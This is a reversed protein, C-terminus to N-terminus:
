FKHYYSVSPMLVLFFSMPRYAYTEEDVVLRWMVENHRALVNYVSLNIGNEMRENKIFTRNISVDLRIYPRLRCANHEGYKTIISGSTIYFSEPATFPRGSSFVFNGSFNWKKWDYSAVASLDHIREHNAPYLGSYDPHDFSRLARGISYSVWGTFKGSKKHLMVNLGFNHGCGKLLYKDLDYKATVLDFVDGKYEVQNLLYKYYACSSISLQGGLLDVDYNLSVSQAAQPASHKGSLFWFDMPLGINSIGSQFLYQKQMGYALSVRGNRYGNWVISASPTLGWFMEQEPSLFSSAKLGTTFSIDCPFRYTYEGWLDCELGRQLEPEQMGVYYDVQQLSQPMVQYGTVDAGFNYNGFSVEAKYGLAMIDSMVYMSSPQQDFLVDSSYGSMFLSNNFQVHDGAHNWHLAAALNGWSAGLSINYNSASMYAKDHGAYVDIWLKDNSTPAIYWTLNYDGFNYRIPDDDILLWPKYLLNLYSSRASLHLCSKNGVNFAVTGQSSMIGVSVEGECNDKLTDPLEMRILGGLRNMSVDSVVSPSFTMGKYHSPNFVSFLGFLHTVGFVPVGAVSVENHANDCGQINIGSDYESGTQVGPLMRVFSVPDTNGLIKPLNQIQDLDVAMKTGDIKKISSTHGRGVFVAEQLELSLSDTQAGAEQCVMLCFSLAFLLIDIRIKRYSILIGKM